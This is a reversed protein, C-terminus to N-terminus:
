PRSGRAVLYGGFMVMWLLAPYAILREAGGHGISGSVDISGADIFIMVIVFVFGILGALASAVALPRPANRSAVIAEINMFLFAFLAFLGHLGTPSDLPFVGAGIAGLGGIAFVAFVKENGDDRYLAYGAMVNLFGILILSANFLLKTEAITGLDSIAMDHMSYGPAIAEGLMMALLFQGAALALLYGAWAKGRVNMHIKQTM